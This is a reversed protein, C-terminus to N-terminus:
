GIDAKGRAWGPGHEWDDERRELDFGIVCAASLNPFESPARWGTEPAQPPVKLQVKKKLPGLDDFFM